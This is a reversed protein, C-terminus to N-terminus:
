HRSLPADRRLEAFAVDREEARLGWFDLSGLDLDPQRSAESVAM